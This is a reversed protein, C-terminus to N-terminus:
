TYGSQTIHFQPVQSGSPLENRAAETLLVPSSHARLETVRDFSPFFDCRDIFLLLFYSLSILTSTQPLQYTFRIDECEEAVYLGRRARGAAEQLISIDGLM